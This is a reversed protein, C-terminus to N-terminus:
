GPQNRAPTMTRVHMLPKHMAASGLQLCWRPESNVFTCATSPAHLLEHQQISPVDRMSEPAKTHLNCQAARLSSSVIRPVFRQWARCPWSHVRAPEDLEKVVACTYSHLKCHARSPAQLLSFGQGLRAGM